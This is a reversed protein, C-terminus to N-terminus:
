RKKIKVKHINTLTEVEGKSDKIHVDASYIGGDVIEDPGKLMFMIQYQASDADKAVYNLRRKESDLTGKYNGNNQLLTQGTSKYKVDNDVSFTKAGNGEIKEKDDIKSNVNGVNLGYKALMKDMVLLGTPVLMADGKILSKLSWDKNQFEMSKYIEDTAEKWKTNIDDQVKKVDKKAKEIDKFDQFPVKYDAEKGDSDKKYKKYKDVTKEEFEKSLSSDDSGDSSYAFMFPKLKVDKNKGDKDELLNIQGYDSIIKLSTGAILYRTGPTFNTPKDTFLFEIMLTDDSEDITKFAFITIKDWDLDEDAENDTHGFGLYIIDGVSTKKLEQILMDQLYVLLEDKKKNKVEEGNDEENLYHKLRFFQNENLKIKKMITNRYLYRTFFFTTCKYLREKLVPNEGNSIRKSSELPIVDECEDMARHLDHLDLKNELEDRMRLFLDEPVHVFGDIIEFQTM